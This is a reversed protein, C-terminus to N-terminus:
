NRLQLERGISVALNGVGVKVRVVVCGVMDRAVADIRRIPWSLLTSLLTDIPFGDM